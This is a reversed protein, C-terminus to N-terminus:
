SGSFTERVYTLVDAYQQDTLPIPLMNGQGGIFLTLLEQDTKLPVEQRIDPGIVGGSGDQGHCLQCQGAYLVAGQSPNGDLTLIDNIRQPDVVSGCANLMQAAFGVALTINIFEKRKM